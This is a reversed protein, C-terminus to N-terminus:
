LLGAIHLTIVLRTIAIIIKAVDINVRIVIKKTVPFVRLYTSQWASRVVM